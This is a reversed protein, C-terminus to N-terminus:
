MPLHDYRIAGFYGLQRCVTNADTSGFSDDCVTGWQGNCYIEVLGRNVTDGGTLRVQATYPNSWIRTSDTYLQTNTIIMTWYLAATINTSKLELM